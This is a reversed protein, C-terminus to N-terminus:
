KGRDGGRVQGAHVFRTRHVVHDEEQRVTGGDLSPFSEVVSRHAEPSTQGHISVVAAEDIGVQLFDAIALIGRRPEVKVDEYQLLLSSPYKWGAEIYLLSSPYKWGAEIYPM